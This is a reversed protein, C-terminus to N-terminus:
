RSLGHVHLNSINANNPINIEHPVHEPIDEGKGPLGAGLVTSSFVNLRPNNARNLYNHFRLRLLDGPYFVFTPGPLLPQTISPNNPDPPTLSYARVDVKTPTTGGINASGFVVNLQKDIKGGESIVSVPEPFPPDAGFTEHRASALLLVTPSTLVIM